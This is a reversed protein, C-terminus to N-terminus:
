SEFNFLPHLCYKKQYEEVERTLIKDSSCIAASISLSNSKKGITSLGFFESHESVNPDSDIVHIAGNKNWVFSKSDVAHKSMITFEVNDSGVDFEDSLKM